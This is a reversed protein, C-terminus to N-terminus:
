YSACKFWLTSIVSIKEWRFFNRSILGKTIEKTFAHSERFKQSFNVSLIETIEVSHSDLNSFYKKKTFYMVSKYFTFYKIKRFKQWFNHSYIETIDVGHRLCRIGAIAACEALIISIKVLLIPRTEDKNLLFLRVCM